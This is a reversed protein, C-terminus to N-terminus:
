QTQFHYIKFSIQNNWSDIQKVPRLGANLLYSELQGLIQNYSQNDYDAIAGSGGFVVWFDKIGHDSLYAIFDQGAPVTKNLDTFFVIPLNYYYIYKDVHWMRSFWDVREDFLIIKGGTLNAAVTQEDLRTIRRKTLNGGFVNKKLYQEL